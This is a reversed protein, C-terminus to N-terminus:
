HRASTVKAPSLSVYYMRDLITDIVRKKRVDIYMKMERDNQM